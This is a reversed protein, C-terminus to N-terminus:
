RAPLRVTVSAMAALGEKRGTFGLRETTTAKVSTRDLGIGLLAAVRERMAERYPGVRPQECLLTIDANAIFGGRARVRAVADAVFQASDAGKWAMDSPPFHVGIDGEGIAGLLADTLAHLPADADSHGDLGRDHPVRVGCLMVHDGPMFRHVDFGNGVRIDSLEALAKATLDREALNCDDETTLKRNRESGEVLTVPIGAWEAIAADDTFDSRGARAAARHAELIPGFHFGQPTQARWLGSRDLTGAVTGNPSARKVTDAMPLGPLVGPCTELATMVRDIVPADVFPRAADHILVSRPAYEVLGELGSLVSGQRSPAGMVPPCLRNGFRGVAENYLNRDDPHIVVQIPGIASHEAFPVLTHALM